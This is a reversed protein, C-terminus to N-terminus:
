LAQPWDDDLRIAVRSRKRQSLQRTAVSAVRFALGQDVSEKEGMGIVLVVPTKFGTPALFKASAYRKGRIEGEEILRSIVNGLLADATQTAPPLPAKTYVGLVLADVDLQDIAQSSTTLRTMCM